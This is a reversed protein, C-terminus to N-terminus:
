GANFEYDHEEDHGQGSVRIRYSVKENNDLIRLQEKVVFECGFFVHYNETVSIDGDTWHGSAVGHESDCSSSLGVAGHLKLLLFKDEVRRLLEEPVSDPPQRRLPIPMHELMEKANALNDEPMSDILAHLESRLLSKM